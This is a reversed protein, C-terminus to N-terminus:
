RREFCLHCPNQHTRRRCHPCPEPNSRRVGSARHPGALAPLAGARLKRLNRPPPEGRRLAAELKGVDVEVAAAARAVSYDKEKILRAARRWREMTLWRHKKAWNAITVGTKGVARGAEADSQMEEEVLIRARELVAPDSPRRSWGTRPATPAAPTPEPPRAPPKAAPKRVRVPTPTPRPPEDRKPLVRIADRDRKLFDLRVMIADGLRIWVSGDPQRTTTVAVGLREAESPQENRRGM